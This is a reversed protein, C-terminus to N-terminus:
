LLKQQEHKKAGRSQELKKAEEKNHTQERNNEGCLVFLLLNFLSTQKSFLSLSLSSLPLAVSLYICGEEDDDAKDNARRNTAL